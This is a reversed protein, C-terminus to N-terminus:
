RGSRPPRFRHTWQWAHPCTLQRRRGTVPSRFRFVYAKSGNSYVCCSLGPIQDDTLHYPKARPRAAKITRTDM